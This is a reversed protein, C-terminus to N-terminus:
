SPLGDPPKKAHIETFLSMSNLCVEFIDLMVVTMLTYDDPSKAGVKLADGLASLSRGYCQLAKNGIAVNEQDKSLSAYAVARVAWRLALRGEARPERFLSPLHELFGPTSGQNCPYMVYKEFFQEVAADEASPLAADPVAKAWPYPTPLNLSSAVAAPIESPDTVSPIHRISSIGSANNFAGLSSRSTSTLSSTYSLKRSGSSTSTSTASVRSSAGSGRLDHESSRRINVKRAVKENESRFLLTADDRYGECVEDRQVCRRCSPRGEDCQM